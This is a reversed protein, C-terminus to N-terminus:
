IRRQRNKARRGATPRSNTCQCNSFFSYCNRKGQKKTKTTSYIRNRLKKMVDREKIRKEMENMYIDARRLRKKKTKRKDRRWKGAVPYKPLGMPVSVYHTRTDMQPIKKKQREKCESV